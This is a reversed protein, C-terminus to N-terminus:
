YYPKNRTFRTILDFAWVPQNGPVMHGANRVLIETLNGAQKVYGAIDNGVKWIHREAIKYDDAANFKLNQLFNLTLPYAVIIDLQGNYILVRYNSLLESIWPAVSQMIDAALNQEVITAEGNFTNNGVHIARRVESSQIYEGMIQIQKDPDHAVLYDFYNDFGTLNKFISTHNNLDGNILTDFLKFAEMWKKNKILEIGKMEIDHVMNLGNLDILGLQYLYNSYKLQNIPDCLGNGIALGKLNIKQKATPNKKYITYSVAPVYKGAYSEGTIFFDNQQLEPFLQFFQLLATYLHLGVETENQVYGGETFSYGAGVPNDVYIVSHSHIWTYKRLSVSRKDKPRFPGHETFLGILSTAGPGGQLWLVIPDRKYNSLSPFYWFFQNSNYQKNVTLYGSFSTINKFGIFNVRAAKQAEEIKGQEILPTLYLAPGPDVRTPQQRIPRYPNIFSHVLNVAAIVLFLKLM